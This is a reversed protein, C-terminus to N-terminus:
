RRLIGSLDRWGYAVEELPIGVRERTRNKVVKGGMTEYFGRSPNKALVWVLMSEHGDAVLSGVIATFLQRGIGRRQVQRLLYIAGLEGTYERDGEEEPGGVAFGVVAGEPNEAVYTRRRGPELLARKRRAEWQRVDIAALYSDPVIGVYTSRWSAAHVEAIARADEPRAIRVTFSEPM